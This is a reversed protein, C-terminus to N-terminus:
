AVLGSTKPKIILFGLFTSTIMIPTHMCPTITVPQAVVVNNRTEDVPVTAYELNAFSLDNSTKSAQKLIDIHPLYFQVLKREASLIGKAYRYNSSMEQLHYVEFSKGVEFWM